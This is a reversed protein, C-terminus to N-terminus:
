RLGMAKEIAARAIKYAYLAEIYSVKANSLTVNADTVQIPNGLGELYTGNVIEFNEQAQQVTLEAVPILDEAEKLSLYAEQVNLYVAQRVSEENARLISLSFRSEEVQYTTLFGNFVPVSLTLGVNWGRALPFRNGAFDYGATGSLLPFFGRKALSISAEAAQRKAVVSRLDPRNQYARSLAEEFSLPYKESSLSDEVDYEPSETVGMAYNLSALAIRVANEAKILSLKANSLDVQAKTVDYKPHTGVEFFGKAQELHLEFQKVAEAAVDRNRKAQLLGFYAQKVNFTIQDSTTELDSLSAEYDMRQIKVQAATKGFDFINQSLNVGTSYSNYTVSSTRFGFSTRPGVSTRSVDSVWGIQPYYSSQAQKMRSWGADATSKAATIDPHRELAIRICRDLNLLDGKKIVEEAYGEFPIVSLLILIFCGLGKM